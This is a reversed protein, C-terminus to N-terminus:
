ELAKIKPAKCIFLAVIEMKPSYGRPIMLDNFDLSKFEEEILIRWKKGFFKVFANFFQRNTNVCNICGCLDFVCNLKIM